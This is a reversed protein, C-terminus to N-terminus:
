IKHSQAAQQLESALRELYFMRIERPVGDFARCIKHIDRRGSEYAQLDRNGYIDRGASYGSLLNRFFVNISISFKEVPAASHLWFPPIYLVEGPRLISEQPHAQRLRPYKTPADDDFVNISSSSAGPALNFISVESPPYLIIRKVGQIQCLVNAM